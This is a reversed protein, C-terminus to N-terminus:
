QDKRPGYMHFTLEIAESNIKEKKWGLKVCVCMERHSYMEVNNIVKRRRRDKNGGSPACSM